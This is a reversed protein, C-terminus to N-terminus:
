DSQRILATAAEVLLPGAGPALKSTAMFTTEYGGRAFAEETPVYGVMGNALSVVVARVPYAADKIRLGLEVFVEAPLSVFAHGGVRLVQIEAPHGARGRIKKVVGPIHRDYIATDIFRQAGTATGRVEAETVARYPLLVTTRSARLIPDAHFVEVGDLAELASAALRGGAEEMTLDLGTAPNSTCLNGCAGNLFLNVASGRAALEHALVGPFGASYVDDDGHNAPHCAFNVLTGLLRGQRSRLVAVIVEPDIPGEYCLADPDSFRGHTCTTGGRMVVRRNYAVNWNLSRGFGIEAEERAALAAEFAAVVRETLWAVYREDRRVDGVNAVAPGAHNHTASVMVNAGPFGCAREIAARLDRVLKWPVSLTDLQLFALRTRDSELLAVRAFLPDLTRAGVVVRLWGIKHTGPPPSIEVQAFGARM